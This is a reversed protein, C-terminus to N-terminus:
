TWIPYWSSSLVAKTYRQSHWICKGVTKYTVAHGLHIRVDHRVEESFFGQFNAKSVKKTKVKLGTIQKKVSRMDSNTWNKYFMPLWQSSYLRVASDVFKLIVRFHEPNVAIDKWSGFAYFCRFCYLIRYVGYLNASVPNMQKLFSIWNRSFCIMFSETLTYFPVRYSRTQEHNNMIILKFMEGHELFNFTYTRYRATNIVFFTSYFLCSLM